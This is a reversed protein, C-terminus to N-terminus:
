QACAFTSQFCGRQYTLWDNFILVVCYICLLSMLQECWKFTICGAPLHLHRTSSQKHHHNIHARSIRADTTCRQHARRTWPFWYKLLLTLTWPATNHPFLGLHINVAHVTCPKHPCSCYTSYYFTVYRMNELHKFSMVIIDDPNEEWVFLCAM